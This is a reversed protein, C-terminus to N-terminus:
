GQGALPTATLRFWREGDSSGARYEQTFQEAQSALVAQLGREIRDALSRDEGSMTRCLQMYDAGVGFGVGALAGSHDFRRWSRSVMTIVGAADLVASPIPLADLIAEPTPLSSTVEQASCRSPHSRNAM